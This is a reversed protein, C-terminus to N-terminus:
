GPGRSGHGPVRVVLGCLRDCLVRLSYSLSRLPLLTMTASLLLLRRLQIQNQVYYHLNSSVTLNKPFSFHSMQKTLHWWTDEKFDTSDISKKLQGLGELRV